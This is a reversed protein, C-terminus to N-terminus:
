LGKLNLSKIKLYFVHNQFTHIHRNHTGHFKFRASIKFCRKYLAHVSPQLFFVSTRLLVVLKCNFKRAECRTQKKWISASISLLTSILM